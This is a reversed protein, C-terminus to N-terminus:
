IQEGSILKKRITTAHILMYVALLVVIGYVCGGTITNMLKRYDEGDTSFRSIMATQLGLISMMSSVFNLVKAASFIPSGQKRFKVLNIVSLVMTYFAYLASLYIVYGPYFFGSNTQVMLIIMGGMPVNLLFLLWATRRYCNYEYCISYAERRRYCFALYARLIGLLLYYVAVSVFWVSLYRIGSVICFLVYVFNITMGQYINISSRFNEDYRYRNGITTSLVKKIPRSNMIFPKVWGILKPVTTLLIILFYASMAYASYALMSKTKGTVFIFVLAIFMVPLLIYIIEKPPHLLKKFIMRAYKM